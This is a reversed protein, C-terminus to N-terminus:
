NWKIKEKKKSINNQYINGRKVINNSNPKNNNLKVNLNESPIANSSKIYTTLRKNNWSSKIQNIILKGQPLLHYGM